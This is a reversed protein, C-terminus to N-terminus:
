LNDLVAMFIDKIRKHNTSARATNKVLEHLIESYIRSFRSPINAINTLNLGFAASGASGDYRQRIHTKVIDYFM